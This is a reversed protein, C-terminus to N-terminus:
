RAGAPWGTGRAPSRRPRACRTCPRAPQGVPLQELREEREKSYTPPPAGAQMVSGPRGVGSAGPADRQHRVLRLQDGGGGLAVAGEQEGVLGAEALGRLRQEGRLGGVGVRQEHTTGLTTLALQARSTSSQVGCRVTVTIWPSPSRRDVAEGVDHDDVVLHEVPVDAPEAVVAEAAHDDVLRVEDLVLGRLARLVHELEGLPDAGPDRPRQQHRQGARRQDVVDLVEARDPLEEAPDVVLLREGLQHVLELLGAQRRGLGAEVGGGAARTMSMPMTRAALDVDGGVDGGAPDGVQRDLELARRAARDALGLALEGAAQDGAVVGRELRARGAGSRDLADVVVQDAAHGVHSRSSM